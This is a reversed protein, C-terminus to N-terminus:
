NVKNRKMHHYRCHIISQLIFYIEDSFNLRIMEDTINCQGSYFINPM